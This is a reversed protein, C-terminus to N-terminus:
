SISYREIDGKKDELYRENIICGVKSTNLSFFAVLANMVDYCCMFSFVLYSFPLACTFSVNAFYIYPGIHKLFLTM